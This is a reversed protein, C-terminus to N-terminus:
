QYEKPDMSMSSISPRGTFALKCTPCTFVLIFSALGTRVLIQNQEISAGCSDCQIEEQAAFEIVDVDDYRVLPYTLVQWDTM